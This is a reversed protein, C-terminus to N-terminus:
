SYVSVDAEKERKKREEEEEQQRLHENDAEIKKTLREEARTITIIEDRINFKTYKLRIPAEQCYVSIFVKCVRVSLFQCNADLFYFLIRIAGLLKDTKEDWGALM